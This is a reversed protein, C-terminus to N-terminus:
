KIRDLSSSPGYFCGSQPSSTTEFKTSLRLIKLSVCACSNSLERSNGLLINLFVSYTSQIFHFSVTRESVGSSDILKSLDWDILVGHGNHIIINGPSRDQHLVGASVSKEHAITSILMVMVFQSLRRVLSPTVSPPSSNMPQALSSLAKGVIKLVIRDHIHECFTSVPTYLKADRGCSQWKGPVDGHAVVPSIHEVQCGRLKAYVVSEQGCARIKWADKLFVQERSQCDFALYGRM